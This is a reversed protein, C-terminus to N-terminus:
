HCNSKSMQELSRHSTVHKCPLGFVRGCVRCHHKSPSPSHRAKSGDSYGPDRVQRPHTQAAEQHKPQSSAINERSSSRRSSRTTAKGGRLQESSAKALMGTVLRHAPLSSVVDQLLQAPTGEGPSCAEEKRKNSATLIHVALLFCPFAAKKSVQAHKKQVSAM